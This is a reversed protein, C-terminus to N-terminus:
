STRRLRAAFFGDVGHKHPWTQLAGMPNVTGGCGPPLYPRASELHYDPHESLFAQLTAENEESSVTCTAYVLVGGPKLLPAVRSLMQTQLLHLRHFDKPKVKWK